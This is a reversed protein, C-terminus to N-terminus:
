DLVVHRDDHLKGMADCHHVVAAYQGFALGALNLGIRVDLPCIESM